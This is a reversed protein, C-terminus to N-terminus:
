ALRYVFNRKYRANYIISREPDWMACPNGVIVDAPRPEPDPICVLTPMSPFQAAVSIAVSVSWSLFQACNIRFRERHVNMTFDRTVFRVPWRLSVGVFSCSFVLLVPLSHVGASPCGLTALRAEVFYDIKDQETETRSAGTM